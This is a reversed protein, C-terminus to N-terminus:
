GMNVENMHALCEDIIAHLRAVREQGVRENFALQARKWERQSQARKERGMPTIRVLRSRGDEGPGVTVWGQTVLSQLNRTLTSSDMEMASALDGPRIPGLELIQSLLTYQTTKLGAKGVIVDFHQSVRRSLQRLKKASCGSIAADQDSSAVSSSKTNM